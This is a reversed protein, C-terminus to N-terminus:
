EPLYLNVRRHMTYLRFRKHDKVLIGSSQNNKLIPNNKYKTWHVLDKSVAINTSWEHWDKFASAHYYGYYLGKYKIVQNMAVAYQDYEDPGMKIVPTDQVNRWIKLNNSTALWIGHDGREYFLYWIGNKIYVTPTGYPGKSIPSGDTNHIDLNGKEQWHIRDTSTFMHATDGQGEAFLYYTGKSKIVFVDEVWHNNVIPNGNYRDWQIGDKSTAYGLFKRPDNKSYGTYWFHYNGKEKLIYGRERLQHDWKTSDGSTFIPNVQYPAFHTLVSPFLSESIVVSKKIQSCQIFLLAIIITFFIPSKKM